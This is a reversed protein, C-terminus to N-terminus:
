LWKGEKSFIQTKEKELEQYIDPIILRINEFDFDRQLDYQIGDQTIVPIAIRPFKGLLHYYIAMIAAAFYKNEPLSLIVTDGKKIGHSIDILVNKMANRCVVVIESIPSFDIDQIPVNVRKVNKETNDHPFLLGFNIFLVNEKM